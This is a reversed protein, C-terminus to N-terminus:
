LLSSFWSFLVASAFSLLCALFFWIAYELLIRRKERPLAAKPSVPSRFKSLSLSAAARAMFFLAGLFPLYSFALALYAPTNEFTLTMSQGILFGCRFVLPLLFFLGFSFLGLLGCAGVWKGRQCFLSFLTQEETPASIASSAGQQVGFWLGFAFTSGFLLWFLVEEKKIAPSYTKKRM